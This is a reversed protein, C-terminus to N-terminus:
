KGKNIKDKAKKLAEEYDDANEFDEPNIGYKLDDACFKRWINKKQEHSDAGTDFTSLINVESVDAGSVGKAKNLADEYDDASSFDYPSLGYASGDECRERWMNQRVKKSTAKPVDSVKDIFPPEYIQPTQQQREISKLGSNLGILGGLSILGRSGGRMAGYGLVMSGAKASEEGQGKEFDKKIKHRAYLGMTVAGALDVITDLPDSARSSKRRRAM